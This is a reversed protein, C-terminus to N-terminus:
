HRGRKGQKNNISEFFTELAEEIETFTKREKEGKKNPHKKNMSHEHLEFVEPLQNLQLEEFYQEVEGERPTNLENWKLDYPERKITNKPMTAVRNCMFNKFVELDIESTENGRIRLHNTKMLGYFLIIAQRTYLRFYFDLLPLHDEYQWDALFQVAEQRNQILHLVHNKEKATLHKKIESFSKAPLSREPSEWLEITINPNNYVSTATEIWDYIEEPNEDKKFRDGYLSHMLKLPGETRIRFFNYVAEHTRNDPTTSISIFDSPLSEDDTDKYRRIILKFKPTLWKTIDGLIERQGPTAKIGM